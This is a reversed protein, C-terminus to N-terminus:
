AEIAPPNPLLMEVASLLGQPGEERQIIDDPCSSRILTNYWAVIAVMTKPDSNKLDECLELAARYDRDSDVVVLDFLSTACLRRAEEISTAERVEYGARKLVASRTQAVHRDRHILLVRNKSPMMAFDIGWSNSSLLQQFPQVASNQRLQTRAVSDERPGSVSLAAILRCAAFEM